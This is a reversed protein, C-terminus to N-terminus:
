PLVEFGHVDTFSPLAGPIWACFDLETGVIPALFGPSVHFVCTAAGAADLTGAGGEVEVPGARMWSFFHDANLPLVGGAFPTGPSTGSNSGLLLYALDAESTGRQLWFPVEAGASMSVASYGAFLDQPAEVDFELDPFLRVPNPMGPQSVRVEFRAPGTSGSAQMRLTHSGDGNDTVPSPTAVPGGPSVDTLLITQGGFDLRKGELDVLHIDVELESVGDAPIRQASQLVRTLVHDSKDQKTRRFQDFRRQLEPMPDPESASNVVKRFLWYNGTACGTAGCSTGLTDGVRATLIMNTHSSHTFGPPPSGCGTPQTPSCSCRGDGGMEHAAWMADMARESLDGSSALFAAVANDIVADGALVNGQIAYDITGLTGAVGKRAFGAITGTFTVPPGALGVIGYQRTQHGNDSVELLDLIEQPTLGAQLENWILLRNAGTTDVYSQAAAAGVGPVIVPVYPRLPLDPLCTAVAVCVEGTARDLCVISWTALADPVAVFLGTTLALAARRLRRLM